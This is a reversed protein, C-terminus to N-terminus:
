SVKKFVKFCNEGNNGVLKRAKGDKNEVIEEKHM